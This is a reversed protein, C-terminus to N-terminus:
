PMKLSNPPGLEGGRGMSGGGRSKKPITKEFLRMKFFNFFLNYLIPIFDFHKKRKTEKSKTGIGILSFLLGLSFYFKVIQRLEGWEGDLWVLLFVQKWSFFFSIKKWENEEWWVYTKSKVTFISKSSLPVLCLKKKKKKRKNLLSLFLVQQTIKKLENTM